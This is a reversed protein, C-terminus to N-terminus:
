RAAAILHDSETTRITAPAARYREAESPRDPHLVRVEVDPLNRDEGAAAVKPIVPSKAAM